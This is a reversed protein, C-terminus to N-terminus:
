FPLCKDITLLGGSLPKSCDATRLECSTLPCNDHDDNSFYSKWGEGIYEKKSLASYLFKYKSDFDTNTKLLQM